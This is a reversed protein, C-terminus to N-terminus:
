PAATPRYKMLRWYDQLRETLAPGGPQLYPRLPRLDAGMEILDRLPDALLQNGMVLAGVLREGSLSLRLTNPGHQSWASAYAHPRSGWVESSGRSLHQVVAPEDDGQRMGLQGMATLHLGFLLCANFPTGKVYAERGGALNRGAVAGTAIASPWLVDCAHTGTWRDLVQACDGAAYVGAVNTELYENVVLARDLRLGSSKLWETQPRVGIGAGVVECALERGDKFRVGRVQGRGNDLVAAIETNFHLRVGHAQM